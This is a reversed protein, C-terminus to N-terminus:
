RRGQAETDVDQQWAALLPQLRRAIDSRRGIMNEREGLDTRVNFLMARGGDFILKWDGARVAQQPRPGSIRWFLTREIAPVRGELVPLLNIGDLRAAAPVPTATAALITATLDMTIGVQGSVVGAPIRGPWRLIAPVRIGGEWVTGKHQFLPTNRSLWEGGNDNTFIVVTNQTLGLRDLAALIRGVGQDAHELMAVYQARTATSDDFPGLHRGNDRATSPQGPPQYPWHAANYAVDIFFPRQRNQEIFRVSRETILDTMYGKAEVAGDNEFLDALGAGDTHQYYDTFGSKFGFFYDFGHARPSFEPRYGLHWKGVLATAYGSDKLLQPLSRGNAPLGLGGDASSAGSLPRELAFRQQYRGSILGTRTPTCTAGNAYFDTLRVGDKALGDIHPTRIDPAGYSGFDGYGVDDTIILVVNPRQERATQGGALAVSQAAVISALLALRRTM